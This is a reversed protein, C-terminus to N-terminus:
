FAAAPPGRLTRPSRAFLSSVRAPREPAWRPARARRRRPAAAPLRRALIREEGVFRGCLLLALVAFFPLAHLATHFSSAAALAGLSLGLAVILARSRM